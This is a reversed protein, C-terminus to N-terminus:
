ANAEDLLVTIPISNLSNKEESYFKALGLTNILDVNSSSDPTIEKLPIRVLEINTKNM